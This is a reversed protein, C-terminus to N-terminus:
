ASFKMNDSNDYPYNTSTRGPCNIWDAGCQNCKGSWNKKTRRWATCMKSCKGPCNKHWKKCHREDLPKCGNKGDEPTKTCVSLRGACICRIPELRAYGYANGDERLQAQINDLRKDEDRDGTDHALGFPLRRRGTHHQSYSMKDEAFALRNALSSPLRRRAPETKPQCGPCAKKCEGEACPHPMCWMTKSSCEGKECSVTGEGHCFSCPLPTFVEKMLNDLESNDMNFKTMLRAKAASMLKFNAEIQAKVDEGQSQRTVLHQTEGRLQGLAVKVEFARDFALRRGRGVQRTQRRDYKHQRYDNGTRTKYEKRRTSIQAALDQIRRFIAVPTVGTKLAENVRSEQYTKANELNQIELGVTRAGAHAAAVNGGMGSCCAVLTLSLAVIITPKSM